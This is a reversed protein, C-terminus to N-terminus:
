RYKPISYECSHQAPSLISADLLSLGFALQLIVQLPLSVSYQPAPSKKCIYWNDEFIVEMTKYVVVGATAGVVTEGVAAAVVAGAVVAGAVVAGAVVAGAVVAAAVVAAVVVALGVHTRRLAEISM